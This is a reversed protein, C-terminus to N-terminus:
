PGGGVTVALRVLEALSKVQMKNMVHARHVEVTKPSLNLDAAIQKNLRGRVVLDMVQRERPTLRDIRACMEQRQERTERGQLDRDLADRVRDLFMQDNFPKELFDLAGAKMARVADPVDGHGSIIIVPLCVGRKRLVDQLDLGSLGPLRIDVVVCGALGSGKEACYQLFADAHPFVKAVLGESELLWALSDRVAKDDDVVHVTSGATDSM